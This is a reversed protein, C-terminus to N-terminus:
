GIFFILICKCKLEYWLILEDLNVNLSVVDNVNLVVNVFVLGINSLGIM